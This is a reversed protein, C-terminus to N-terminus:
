EKVGGPAIVGVAEVADHGNLGGGRGADGADDYEDSTLLGAGLDFAGGEVDGGVALVGDALAGTDDEEAGSGEGFGAVQEAGTGVAGGAACGGPIKLQDLEGVQLARVALIGLGDHVLEGVVEGLRVDDKLEERQYVNMGGGELGCGKADAYLLLRVIGEELEDIGDEVSLLAEGGAM